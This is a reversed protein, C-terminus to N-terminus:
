QMPNRRVVTRISRLRGPVRELQLAQPRSLICMGGTVASEYHSREPAEEQGFIRKFWGSVGGEHRTSVDYRSFDHASVDSGSGANMYIDDAEFGNSQLEAAAAQADSPNRYVAVLTSHTRTAM